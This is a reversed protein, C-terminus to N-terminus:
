RSEREFAGVDQLYKLAVAAQAPNTYIEAVPHDIVKVIAAAVEDATQSPTSVPLPPTGGIANKQFDTSVLGLM